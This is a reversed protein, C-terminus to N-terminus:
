VVDGPSVGDYEAGCYREAVGSGATDGHGICPTNAQCALM